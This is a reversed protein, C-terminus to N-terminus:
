TRESSLVFTIERQCSSCTEKVETEPRTLFILMQHGCLPCEVKVETEPRTLFILMQHGCLPCEVFSCDVTKVNEQIEMINQSRELAALFWGLGFGVLWICCCYILLDKM